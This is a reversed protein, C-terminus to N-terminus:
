DAPRRGWATVMFPPAYHTSGDGAMTALGRAVDDSTVLRAGVLRPGLQELTGRVWNETGGSVLPAHVVGGVREMGVAKLEGVLRPGFSGDAGAADFLRGVAGYLHEFLARHEAPDAYCALAAAMPGGFHTDEIVAWGGPKLATVVRRLAGRHDPIHEVVARAHALDFAGRELPDSLIDHRRVELNDLGHGEVFRTDLDTAVVRGTPGVREALWCAIGGAGCGVELCRWGEGVGVGALHRASEDDFLAELALLRDREMTWEPSFVYTTM